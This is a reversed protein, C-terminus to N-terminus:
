FLSSYSSSLSFGFAASSSSSYSFSPSSSEILKDTSLVSASAPGSDDESGSSFIVEISSSWCIPVEAEGADDEVLV